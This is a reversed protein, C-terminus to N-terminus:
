NTIWWLLYDIWSVPQRALYDHCVWRTTPSWQRAVQETGFPLKLHWGTCWTTRWSRLQRWFTTWTPHTWSRLTNRRAWSSWWCKLNPQTVRHRNGYSRWQWLCPWLPIHGWSKLAHQIKWISRGVCLQFVFAPGNTQTPWHLGSAWPINQGTPWPWRVGSSSTESSPSASSRPISTWCSALRIPVRPM